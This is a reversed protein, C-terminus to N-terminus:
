VDFIKSESPLNSTLLSPLVQQLNLHIICFPLLLPQLFTLLPVPSIKNPHLAKIPFADNKTFLQSRSHSYPYERQLQSSRSVFLHRLIRFISLSVTDSSGPYLTEDSVVRSWLNSPFCPQWLTFFTGEEAVAPRCLRM